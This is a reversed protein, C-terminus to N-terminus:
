LDYKARILRMQEDTAFQGRDAQEIGIRLAAEEDPSLEVVPDDADAGAIMMMVRAM